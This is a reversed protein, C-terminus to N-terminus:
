EEVVRVRLIGLMCMIYGIDLKDVVIGRISFEDGDVVYLSGLSGAISDIAFDLCLEVM